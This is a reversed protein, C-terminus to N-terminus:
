MAEVLARFRGARDRYDRFMGFSECGPSFIVTHGPGAVRAAGEVAAELTPCVRVPVVPAGRAFAQRMLPATDGILFAAKVGSSALAAGLELYSAATATQSSGGAILIKPGSFARVAALTSVPDTSQSDEIWTVGKHERVRSLRNELGKFAVAARRIAPWPAGAARAALAAALVNLLNHRGPLQLEDTSLLVSEKGGERVVLRRERLFAGEDVPRQVSFERLSAPTLRALGRTAANDANLVAIDGRKQHRVLNAKTSLYHEFSAHEDLHHPTINTVVAIHPSYPMDMLQRNSIELVVLARPSLAELREFSWDNARDNGSSYVERGASRLMARTLAVTTSKGCTGTVGLIPCPALEFCLQILPKLRVGAQRARRLSGNFDYRHWSQPVFVLDAAEIGELYASGLKLEIPMSALQEFAAEAEGPPMSEHLSVFQQRLAAQDASHDHVTFDGFGKGVLFRTVAYGEQGAVGVVHLRKGRLDELVSM